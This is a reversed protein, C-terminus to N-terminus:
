VQRAARDAALLKRVEDRPVGQVRGTVVDDVRRTIETTWRRHIEAPDSPEDLSALLQSAVEARENVPLTLALQTIEEIGAEM